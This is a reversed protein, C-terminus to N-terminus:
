CEFDAICPTHDSAQEQLRPEMDIESSTALELLSKTAYIHDIRWGKKYKVADRTRYDFFTYAKKRDPHFHRFVDFLGWAVLDALAQREDPHCGVDDEFYDPAYLDHDEPAVNFDGTVILKDEKQYNMEIFHKLKTYWDLKYAFKDSGIQNGQPVYCNVVSFDEFDAAILRKQPDDNAKDLTTHVQKAPMRSLICVGNYSKQGIYYAHWGLEEFTTQPFDHDQIKTEQLCVVTPKAQELWNLLIKLRVRLSNVNFTAVRLPDHAM